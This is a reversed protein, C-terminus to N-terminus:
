WTSSPNRIAVPSGSSHRFSNMSLTRKRASRTAWTSRPCSAHKDPPWPHGIGGSHDGGQRARLRARGGGQDVRPVPVCRGTPPHGATGRGNEDEPDQHCSELQAWKPPHAPLRRRDSHLCCRCVMAHRRWWVQDIRRTDLRCRGHARRRRRQGRGHRTRRHRGHRLPIPLASGQCDANGHATATPQARHARGHVIPLYSAWNALGATASATAPLEGLMHTGVRTGRVKCSAAEAVQFEVHLRRAWPDMDLNVNHAKLLLHYEVMMRAVIGMTATTHEGPADASLLASAERAVLEHDGLEQARVLCKKVTADVIKIYSERSCDAAEQDKTAWKAAYLMDKHCENSHERSASPPGTAGESPSANTRLAFAIWSTVTQLRRETHHRSSQEKGLVAEAAQLSTVLAHVVPDSEDTANVHQLYKIAIRAALQLDALTESAEVAYEAFKLLVTAMDMDDDDGRKAASVMEAVSTKIAGLSSSDFTVSLRGVCLKRIRSSKRMCPDVSAEYETLKARRPADQRDVALENMAAEVAECVETGDGRVDGDGQAVEANEDQAKNRPRTTTTTSSKRKKAVIPLPGRAIDVVGMAVHGLSFCINPDRSLRRRYEVEEPHPGGRASWWKRHLLPCTLTTYAADHPFTLLPAYDDYLRYDSLLVDVLLTRVQDPPEDLLTQVVQVWGKGTSMTRGSTDYDYETCGALMSCLRHLHDLVLGPTVMAKTCSNRKKASSTTANPKTPPLRLVQRYGVSQFAGENILRLHAGLLYADAPRELDMHLAVYRSQMLLHLLASTTEVAQPDQLAAADARAQSGSVSPLRSGARSVHPAHATAQEFAAAAMNVDNVDRAVAARLVQQMANRCSDSTRALAEADPETADSADDVEDLIAEAADEAEIVWAILKDQGHVSDEDKANPCMCVPELLRGTGYAGVAAKRATLHEAHAPRSM